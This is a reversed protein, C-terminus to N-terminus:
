GCGLRKVITLDDEKELWGLPTARAGKRTPETFSIVTPCHHNM